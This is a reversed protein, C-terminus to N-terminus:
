IGGFLHRGSLLSDTRCTRRVSEVWKSCTGCTEGTSTNLGRRRLAESVLEEKERVLKRGSLADRRRRGSPAAEDPWRGSGLLELLEHVTMSRLQKESLFEELRLRHVASLSARTRSRASTGPGADQHPADAPPRQQAGRRNAFLQLSALLLPLFTIAGIVAGPAGGGGGTHVFFFSM